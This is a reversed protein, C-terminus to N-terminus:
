RFILSGYNSNEGPEENPLQLSGEEYMELDM